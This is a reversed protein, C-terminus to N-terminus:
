ERVLFRCAVCASSIWKFSEFTRALQGVYLGALLYAQVHALDNSGHLNGLIDTAPAYYALGPIIDINRPTTLPDDTNSRPSPLSNRHMSTPSPACTNAMIRSSTTPSMGVPHAPPSQTTTNLPSHYQVGYATAGRADSNKRVGPLRDKWECIRGLAMVLLVIATSISREFLIERKYPAAAYGPETAFNKTYGDTHKRKGVTSTGRLADVGSSTAPPSFLSKTLKQETPNYRVSFREIMRTLRPKDLFPHLVYINELYSDLLRRLTLPHINLSFDFNPDSSHPGNPTTVPPVFGYGWLGEPPSAPSAADTVDDSRGSSPSSSSQVSSQGSCQHAPSDAGPQGGDGTDRGEGVGYVRLVGRDEELQMVYDGNAVYGGLTKQQRILGRISPWSLLRHAATTHEVPVNIPPVSLSPEVAAPETSTTAHSGSPSAEVKPERIASIQALAHPPIKQDPTVKRKPSELNFHQRSMSRREPEEVTATTSVPTGSSLLFKEIREISSQLPSMMAEFKELKRDQAALHIDQGALHDMIAQNARDARGHTLGDYLYGLDCVNSRLLWMRIIAHCKIRLVSVANQGAKTANQKENDVSM